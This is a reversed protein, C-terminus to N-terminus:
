GTYKALLAAHTGQAQMIFDCAERVAGEGGNRASQWHARAVVDPHANATTMALGVKVMCTLDPHDDGMFAIQELALPLDTLIEQLAAFKDERGQVLINIGLDGARRAVLESKRGTIIGVQVGSKQLLKIGHGDQTNFAKMENGQNDFYLKGDTLVGDVDLLLLKINKASALAQTM